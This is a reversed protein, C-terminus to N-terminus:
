APAVVAVFESDKPWVRWDDRHDVVVLGEPLFSQVRDAWMQSTQGHRYFYGKTVEVTGNKKAVVKSPYIGATEFAAQLQKKIQASTM